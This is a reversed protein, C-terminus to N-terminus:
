KTKFLYKKRPLTIRFSINDGQPDKNKGKLMWTDRDVRSLCM